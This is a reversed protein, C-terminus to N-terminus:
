DVTFSEKAYQQELVYQTIKDDFKKLHAYVSKQGNPHQIYLALGYGYSSVKVRYVYGDAVAYVNLGERGETKIDLGAHFHNSRLEGMKASLYNQQKPKIPFTYYDKPFRTDQANAQFVFPLLLFLLLFKPMTLQKSNSFYM